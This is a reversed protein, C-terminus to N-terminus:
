HPDTSVAACPRDVGALQGIREMSREHIALYRARSAEELAHLSAENLREGSKSGAFVELVPIGAVAAVSVAAAWRGTVGDCALILGVEVVAAEDSVDAWTIKWRGAQSDVVSAVSESHSARFLCLVSEERRGDDEPLVELCRALAAQVDGEALFVGVKGIRGHRSPRFRPPELDTPIRSVARGYAQAEGETGDVLMPIDGPVAQVLEDAPVFALVAAFPQRACYERIQEAALRADQSLPVFADWAVDM